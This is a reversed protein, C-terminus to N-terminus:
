NVDLTMMVYKESIAATGLVLKGMSRVQNTRINWVTLLVEVDNWNAKSGFLVNEHESAYITRTSLGDPISIPKKVTLDFFLLPKGISPNLRVINRFIFVRLFHKRSFIHRQSILPITDMLWISMWKVIQFRVFQLM